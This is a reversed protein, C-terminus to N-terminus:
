ALWKVLTARYYSRLLLHCAQVCIHPQLLSCSGDSCHILVRRGRALHQSAFELAAPLRALLDHRARKADQIPLHLYRGPPGTLEFVSGLQRTHSAPAM